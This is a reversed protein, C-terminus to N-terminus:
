LCNLHFFFIYFNIIKGNRFFQNIKNIKYKDIGVLIATGAIIFIIFAMIYFRYKSWFLILKEDQIDQNVEDIFQKTM